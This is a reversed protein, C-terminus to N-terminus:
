GQQRVQALFVTGSPGSRWTLSGGLSRCLRNATLLGFRGTSQIDFNPPLGTGDDRITLLLDLRNQECTVTVSKRAHKMANTVLENVIIAVSSARSPDMMVGGCGSYSVTREASRALNACLGLRSGHALSCWNCDFTSAVGGPRRGATAVGGRLTPPIERFNAVSRIATATLAFTVLGFLVAGCVWVRRSSRVGLM